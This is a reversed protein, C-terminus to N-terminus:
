TPAPQGGQAQILRALLLQLRARAGNSALCSGRFFERVLRTATVESDM